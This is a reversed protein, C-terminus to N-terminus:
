RKRAIDYQHIIYDALADIGHKDYIKILKDSNDYLRMMTKYPMTYEKALQFIFGTIGDKEYAQDLDSVVDNAVETPSSALKQSEAIILRRLQRRTIRKM